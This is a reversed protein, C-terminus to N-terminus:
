FLVSALENRYQRTLPYEDGLLTFLALMVIRAEGDRFNKDQRLIDLIGDMAAPINGRLILKLARNYAADNPAENLAATEKKVKSLKNALARLKEAEDLERSAPFRDLLERAEAIRAQMLYSKALGLQAPASKPTDELVDLFANEASKWQELSLMSLGKELTLDSPNPTVEQIFQRVKPEPQAGIFESVVQGDRFAKVAPISRVNFRSALNPNKDVDVKALRFDGQAEQAMNELIPGLTRCPICWEAWFDVIVPVRRSYSIVQQDFDKENVEIIDYSSMM